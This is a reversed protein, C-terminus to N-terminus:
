KKREEYTTGLKILDQPRVNKGQPVNPGDIAIIDMYNDSGVEVFDDGHESSHWGYNDRLATQNCTIRFCQLWEDPTTGVYRARDNIGFHTSLYQDLCREFILPFSNMNLEAEQKSEFPGMEMDTLVKEAADLTILYTYVVDDCHQQEAFKSSRSHEATIVINKGPFRDTPPIWRRKGPSAYFSDVTGIWASLTLDCRVYFRGSENTVKLQFKPARSGKPPFTRGNAESDIEHMREVTVPTPPGVRVRAPRALGRLRIKSNISIAVPNRQALQEMIADWLEVVTDFRKEIRSFSELTTTVGVGIRAESTEERQYTFFQSVLGYAERVDYPQHEDYHSKIWIQRQVVGRSHSTIAKVHRQPASKLQVSAQPRLRQNVPPVISKQVAPKALPSEKKQLVKPVPQPRYAPPAVPQRSMHSPSTRGAALMRQLVAPAKQPRYVPPAVPKKKGNDFAM